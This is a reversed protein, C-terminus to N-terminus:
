KPKEFTLRSEQDNKREHKFSDLSFRTKSRELVGVFKGFARKDVWTLTRGTERRAFKRPLPPLEWSFSNPAIRLNPGDSPTAM